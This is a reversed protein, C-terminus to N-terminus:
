IGRENENHAPQQQRQQGLSSTTPRGKPQRHQSAQLEQNQGIALVRLELHEAIMQRGQAQVWQAEDKRQDKVERREQGRQISPM